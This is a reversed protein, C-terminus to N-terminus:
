RCTTESHCFHLTHRIDISYRTQLAHIICAYADIAISPSLCVDVCIPFDFRFFFSNISSNCCSIHKNSCLRHYNSLEFKLSLNFATAAVAATGFQCSGEAESLSESNNRTKKKENRCQQLQVGVKTHWRSEFAAVFNTQKENELSTQLNCEAWGPQERDSEVDAM